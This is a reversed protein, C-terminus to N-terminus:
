YDGHQAFLVGAAPQTIARYSMTSTPSWLYVYALYAIDMHRCAVSLRNAEPNLSKVAHISRPRPCEYDKDTMGSIRSSKEEFM